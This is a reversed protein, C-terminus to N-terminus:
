NSSKQFYLICYKLVYRVNLSAWAATEQRQRWRIPRAGEKPRNYVFRGIRDLVEEQKRKKREFHFCMKTQIPLLRQPGARDVRDGIGVDLVPYNPTRRRDILMALCSM